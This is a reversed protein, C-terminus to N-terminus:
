PNKLGARALFFLALGGGFMAFCAWSISTDLLAQSPDTPNYHVKVLGGKPYAALDGEALARVNSTTTVTRIRSSTYTTGNVDYTYSVRPVYQTKSPKHNHKNGRKSEISSATVRGEVVPWSRSSWSKWFMYSGAAMFLLAAFAMLRVIWAPIFSPSKRSAPANEM